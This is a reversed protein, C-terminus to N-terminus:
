RIPKTPKNENMIREAREPTDQKLMASRLDEAVMLLMDWQDDYEKILGKVIKTAQALMARGGATVIPIQTHAKQRLDALQRDIEHRRAILLKEEDIDVLRVKRAEYYRKNRAKRKDESPPLAGGEVESEFVEM